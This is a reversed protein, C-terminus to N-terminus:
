FARNHGRRSTALFEATPWPAPQAISRAALASPSRAHSRTPIDALTPALSLVFSVIVLLFTLRIPTRRLSFVCRLLHLPMRDQTQPRRPSSVARSSESM